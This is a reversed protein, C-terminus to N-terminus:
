GIARVEFEADGSAASSKRSNTCESAPRDIRSALPKVVGQRYPVIKLLVGLDAVLTRGREVSEAPIGAKVMTRARSAPANKVSGKMANSASMVQDSRGSSNVLLDAKSASHNDSRVAVAAVTMQTNKPTGRARTKARVFKGPRVRIREITSTGSTVGGTTAPIRSVSAKPRRPSIPSCSEATPMFM